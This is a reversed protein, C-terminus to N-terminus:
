SRSNLADRWDSLLSGGLLDILWLLLLVSFSVIGAVMQHLTLSSAFLGVAMMAAGLLFISLYSLWLVPQDLDGFQALILPYLLSGGTLMFLVILTSLYKGFVIEALNAPSTLLLEDTGHRLEDSILRMTLLPVIFLFVLTMYNFIVRVDVLGSALFQGSFFYGTIVFYIAFAVYSVPSFFYLQLEKRCIAWM